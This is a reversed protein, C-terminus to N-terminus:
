RKGQQELGQLQALERQGVADDDRGHALVGGLAAMGRRPVQHVQALEREAARAQDEGLAGGDIRASADAGGVEAQPVVALDRWQLGHDIEDVRLAAGDAHLQRVRAALGAALRQPLAPRGDVRRAHRGIFFGPLAQAGACERGAGAPRRRASEIRRVHGLDHLTKDIGGHAGVLGAEVHDLQVEAM